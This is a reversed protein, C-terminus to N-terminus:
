LVWVTITWWVYRKTYLKFLEEIPAFLWQVLQNICSKYLKNPFWSGHL